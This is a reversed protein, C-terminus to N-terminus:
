LLAHVLATAYQAHHLAMLVWFTIVAGIIALLMKTRESM